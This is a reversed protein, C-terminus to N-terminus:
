QSPSDLPTVKSKKALSKGESTITEAKADIFKIKSKEEQIETEEGEEDVTDKTMDLLKIRLRKGIEDPTMDKGQEPLDLLKIKIKKALKEHAADKLVEGEPSLVELVLIALRNHEVAYSIRWDGAHIQYLHPYEFPRHEGGAPLSTKPLEDAIKVRSDNGILKTRM